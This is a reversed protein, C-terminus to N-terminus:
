PTGARPGAADPLPDAVPGVRDAFGVVSVVDGALAALRRLVDLNAQVFAPRILLDEPPYGTIALEPFLLVDASQEEAWMMARAIRDHNGEPDGVVLNLKPGAVRLFDM